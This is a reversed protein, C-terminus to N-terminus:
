HREREILWRFGICLYGLGIAALLTGGYYNRRDASPFLNYLGVHACVATFYVLMMSLPLIAGICFPRITTDGYTLGTIALASAILLLGILTPQAVEFPVQFMLALVVADAAVTLLLIRLTFQLGPKEM